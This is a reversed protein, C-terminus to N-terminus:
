SKKLEKDQTAVYANKALAQELILDDVSKKSTTKIISAKYHKLLKLALKELESVQKDIALSRLLNTLLTSAHQVVVDLWLM